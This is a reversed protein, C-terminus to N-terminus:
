RSVAEASVQAAVYRRCGCAQPEHATCTARQGKTNFAHLQVPHKCTCRCPEYPMQGTAASPDQRSM